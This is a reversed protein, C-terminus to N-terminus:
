GQAEPGEVDPNQLDDRNRLLIDLRQRLLNVNVAAEPVVVGLVSAVLEGCLREVDGGNNLPDADLLCCAVDAAIRGALDILDRRAAM